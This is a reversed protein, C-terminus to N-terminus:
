NPAGKQICKPWSMWTDFLLWYFILNLYHAISVLILLNWTCRHSNETVTRTNHHQINLHRWDILWVFTKGEQSAKRLSPAICETVPLSNSYDAVQCNLLSYTRPATKVASQSDLAPAAERLHPDSKLAFDPYTRASDDDASNVNIGAFTPPAQDNHAALQRLTATSMGSLVNIGIDKLKKLLQPRTLRSPQRQQVMSRTTYKSKKNTKVM